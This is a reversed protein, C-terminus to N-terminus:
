RAVQGQSRDLESDVHVPQAGVARMLLHTTM